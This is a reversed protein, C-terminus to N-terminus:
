RIDISSKVPTTKKTIPQCKLRAIYLFSALARAGTERCASSLRDKTLLISTLSTREVNGASIVLMTQIFTCIYICVLAQSRRIYLDYTIIVPIILANLLFLCCLFFFDRFYFLRDKVNTYGSLPLHDGVIFRM